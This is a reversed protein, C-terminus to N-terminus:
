GIGVWTTNGTCNMSLSYILNGTRTLIPKDTNLLFLQYHAPPVHHSPSMVYVYSLCQKSRDIEIICDCM